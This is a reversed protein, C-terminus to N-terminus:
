HQVKINDEYEVVVFLALTAPRKGKHLLVERAPMVGYRHTIVVESVKRRRSAMLTYPCACGSLM